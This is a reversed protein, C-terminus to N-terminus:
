LLRLPKNIQVEQHNFVNDGLYVTQSITIKETNQTLEELIAECIRRELSCINETNLRQFLLEIITEQETM